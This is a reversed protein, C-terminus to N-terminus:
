GVPSSRSPSAATQDLDRAHGDIVVAVVGVRAAETSLLEGAYAWGGSGQVVLVSGRPATELATLVAAVSGEACAATVVPGAVTGEGHLRHVEPPLAGRKDNADFVTSASLDWGM